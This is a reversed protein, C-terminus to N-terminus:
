RFYIVHDHMLVVMSVLSLVGCFLVASMRSFMIRSSRLVISLLAAHIRSAM